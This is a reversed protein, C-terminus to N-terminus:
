MVHDPPFSWWKCTVLTDIGDTYGLEYALDNNGAVGSPMDPVGADYFVNASIIRELPHADIV